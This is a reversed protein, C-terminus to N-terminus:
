NSAAPASRLQTTRRALDPDAAFVARELTELYNDPFDWVVADGSRTLGRSVPDLDYRLTVLLDSSVLPSNRFYGHGNGEDFGSTHEVDILVVSDTTRLYDLAAPPLNLTKLEGLRDYGFVRSAFALAKDQPSEYITIRRAVRAMGDNLYNGFLGRDVDSAILIVNGLRLTEHIEETPRDHYLLGLQFLAATVLRTGASYGVIHIRRANTESALYRVFDRLYLSAYRASESDGFYAFRGERSPWAFPIFVGEYGMFHWLEAAVLVPNEFNVRYGHVYIFIDQDRSRALRENIAATFRERPASTVPITESLMPHVTQDLVGFEEVDAVQLPYKDANNKLISMHRAEAWTIDSTGLVIRAAGVRLDGSRTDSYYRGQAPSGAPQRLSAYLIVPDAPAAVATTDSFSSVEDSELFAPPAM